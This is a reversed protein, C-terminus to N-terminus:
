IDKGQILTESNVKENMVKVTGGSKGVFGHYVALFMYYVHGFRNNRATLPYVILKVLIRLIEFIKFFFPVSLNRCLLLSNRVKYYHRQASHRNIVYGGPFKCIDDGLSHLLTVSAVGFLEYGKKRARFCWETDVGDIFLSEDMPGVDDLVQIPMLTGSTILHDVRFVTVGALEEPRAKMRLGTRFCVFDMKRRSHQDVARPGVAAIPYVKQLKKMVALLECVMGPAPISDHDLLLIHSCDEQRAVEVGKNIAAAIGTNEKERILKLREYKGPLCELECGYERVSANDVIIIGSVDPIINNIIERVVEPEPNYTIIIAYIKVM